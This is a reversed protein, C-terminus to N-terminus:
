SLIAREFDSAAASGDLEDSLHAQKGMNPGVLEVADIMRALDIQGTSAQKELRAALDRVSGSELGKEIM